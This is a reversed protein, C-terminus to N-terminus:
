AQDAEGHNATTIADPAIRADRPKEHSPQTVIGQPATSRLVPAPVPSSM